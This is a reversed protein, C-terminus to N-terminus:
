TVTEALVHFDVLDYRTKFDSMAAVGGPLALIGSGAVAKVLNFTTALIKKRRLSVESPSDDKNGRADISATRLATKSPRYSQKTLQSARTEPLSQKQFSAGSQSLLLLLVIRLCKSHVMKM